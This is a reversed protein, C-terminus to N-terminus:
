SVRHQISRSHLLTLLMERVPVPGAERLVVARQISQELDDVAFIAEEIERRYRDVSESHSLPNLVWSLAHAVEERIEDSM